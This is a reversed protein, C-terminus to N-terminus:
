INPTRLSSGVCLSVVVVVAAGATAAAAVAADVVSVAAAAVTVGLPNATCMYTIRFCVDSVLTLGRTGSVASRSVRRWLGFVGFLVACRVYDAEFLQVKPLGRGNM